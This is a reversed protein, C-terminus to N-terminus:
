NRVSRSQQSCVRGQHGGQLAHRQTHLRDRVQVQTHVCGRVREEPPGGGDRDHDEVTQKRDKTNWKGQTPPIRVNQYARQLFAARHRWLGVEAIDGGILLLVFSPNISIWRLKESSIVKVSSIASHKSPQIRTLDGTLTSETGSIVELYALLEHRGFPPKSTNLRIKLAPHPPGPTLSWPGPVLSWPSSGLVPSWVSLFSHASSVLFRPSPVLIPVLVLVLVLGPALPWPGPALPWPGPGPGPGSGSGPALLWPGPALPWPGPALPWPGPILSWKGLVLSCLCSVLSWVLLM